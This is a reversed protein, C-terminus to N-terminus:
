KKYKTAVIYRLMMETNDIKPLVNRRVKKNLASFKTVIYQRIDSPVEGWQPFPSLWDVLLHQTEEGDNFPVIYPFLLDSYPLESAHVGIQGELDKTLVCGSLGLRNMLSFSKVFPIGAFTYDEIYFDGYDIAGRLPFGADFSHRLLYSVTMLFPVLGGINIKDKSGSPMALIISDSIIVTKMKKQMEALFQEAIKAVKEETGENTARARLMELLREKVKDPMGILSRIIEASYQILNNAIIEQYGLIDFVGVLGYSTQYADLNM